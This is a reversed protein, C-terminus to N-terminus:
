GKSGRPDASRPYTREEQIRGDKTHIRVSAGGIRLAAARTERIADDKTGAHALVESGSRAIWMGRAHVLDIRKM